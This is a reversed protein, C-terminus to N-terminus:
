RTGADVRRTLGAPNAEVARAAALFREAEADSCLRVVRKDHANAELLALVKPRSRKPYGWVWRAFELTLREHCGEAMDPRTRGRYRVARKVVRWLCVARPLDLVIITDCAAVRQALTGSYNGDMVWSERATLEEVYRAWEDRPPEVWGAGWFHRDLHIVELNLRRGLRRAFTSKGAGGSGIVLVKKM